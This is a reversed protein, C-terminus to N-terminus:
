QHLRYRKKMRSENGDTKRIICGTLSKREPLEVIMSPKEEKDTHCKGGTPSAVDIHWAPNDWRCTTSIRFLAASAPKGPLESAKALSINVPCKGCVATAANTLARFAPASRAQETAIIAKNYVEVM